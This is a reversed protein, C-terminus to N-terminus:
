TAVSTPWTTAIIGMTMVDYSYMSMCLSPATFMLLGFIMILLGFLTTALRINAMSDVVLHFYTDCMTLACAIMLLTCACMYCVNIFMVCVANISMCVIVFTLCVAIFNMSDDSKPEKSNSGFDHWTYTVTIHNTIGCMTARHVKAGLSAFSANVMDKVKSSLSKYGHKSALITTVRANNGPGKNGKNAM